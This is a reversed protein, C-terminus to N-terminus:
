LGRSIPVYTRPPEAALRARIESVTLKNQRRIHEDSPVVLTAAGAFVLAALTFVLIIGVDPAELEKTHISHM